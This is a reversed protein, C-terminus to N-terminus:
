SKQKQIGKLRSQRLSHIIYGYILQYDDREEKLSVTKGSKLYRVECKALDGVVTEDPLFIELERIRERGFYDLHLEFVTNKNRGIYVSCDDSNIELHSVKDKINYVTDPMGFLSVLYDWEHILDISVGGGLEKKASYTDRYDVGPRWDPLYSSCVARASYASRCDINNKIYQLVNTYRLPCAVYYAGNEKLQLTSIDIDTRDFVPKEIFLSGACGSYLKLAEYHLSTPNTIFVANYDDPIKEGYCYTNSILSRIDNDLDRGNKSRLADFQFTKDRSKLLVSLNKIHRKAISGIGIFAIKYDAM